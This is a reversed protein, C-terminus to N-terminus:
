RLGTVKGHGLWVKKLQKKKSFLSYAIHIISYTFIFIFFCVKNILDFLM